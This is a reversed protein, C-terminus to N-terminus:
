YLERVALQLEAIASRVADFQERELAHSTETGSYRSGAIIPEVSKQRWLRACEEVKDLSSQVGRLKGATTRLDEVIMPEAAVGARYPSLFEVDGTLEYGRIGTEQDTLTQLLSDTKISLQRATELQASDHWQWVSTTISALLLIAMITVAALGALRRRRRRTHLRISLSLFRAATESIRARQESDAFRQTVATLEDGRYLDRDNQGRALWREAAARIEGEVLLDTRHRILLRRLYPWERLLSEHIIEVTSTGITRADTTLLRTKDNCLAHLIQPAVDPLGVLLADPPVRLRAVDSDNTVHVLRVLLKEATSRGDTGFDKEIDALVADATTALARSIGGSRRYGSLTLMNGSRRQWTMRLAHSLLPLRGPEYTPGADDRDVGLDAMLLDVLGEELVLRSARAPAEVAVRLEDATMASVVIPSDRVVSALSPYSALRGYADSRMAMVVLGAPSSGDCTSAASVAAMFIELDPEVPDTEDLRRAFFAAELQDLILVVRAGPCNRYGNSVELGRRLITSINTPDHRLERLIDEGPAGTMSGLQDALATLPSTTVTVFLVPWKTSDSVGLLGRDLAPILGARLLSTKGAGSAGVLAVPRPLGECRDTLAQILENILQDRGSYWRADGVDFSALGLYPCLGPTVASVIDPLASTESLHPSQRFAVNPAVSLSGLSGDARCRPIPLKEEEMALALGRTLSDLTWVEDGTPDGDILLRLLAGSFTTHRAGSPALSAEYRSSSTLVFGGPIQTQDAVDDPEGLGSPGELARASFCCDLIVVRHHARSQRILNGVVRFPLATYNAQDQLARTATTALHLHGSSTLVGHGVYYLVLVDEALAAAHAVAAGIEEVSRPNLKVTFATEPLQCKEALTSRLDEVTTAVAQVGPLGSESVPLHQGTGLILIHTGGERGWM